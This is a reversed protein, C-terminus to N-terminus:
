TRVSKWFQESIFFLVDRKPARVYGLEFDRLAATEQRPTV